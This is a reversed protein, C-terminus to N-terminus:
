YWGIPTMKEIAIRKWGVPLRWTKLGTEMEQKPLIRAGFINGSCILETFSRIRMASNIGISLRSMYLWYRRMETATGTDPSGEGASDVYTWCTLHMTSETSPRFPDMLTQALGLSQGSTFLTSIDTWNVRTKSGITADLACINSKNRMNVAIM